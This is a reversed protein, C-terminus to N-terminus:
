NPINFTLDPNVLGEAIGHTLLFLPNNKNGWYYLLNHGKFINDNFYEPYYKLRSQDVAQYFSYFAEYKFLNVFNIGTRNSDSEPHSTVFEKFEDSNVIYMNYLTCSDLVDCWQDIIEKNEEIFNSYFNGTLLKRHELLLCMTAIELVDVNVLFSSNLYDKLLDFFDDDMETFQLDCPIELNSLYTLLKSGKLKSNKYDILYKTDQDVFFKKLEEVPIPATTKIINM